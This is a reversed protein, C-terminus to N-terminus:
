AGIAVRKEKKGDRAFYVANHDRDDFAAAPGIHM